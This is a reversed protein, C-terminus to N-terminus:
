KSSPSDITSSPLDCREDFGAFSRWLALHIEQLLDLRQESDMEYGSALRAMMSGYESVVQNYLADQRPEEASFDNSM